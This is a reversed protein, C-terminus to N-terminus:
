VATKLTTVCKEEGVFPQWFRGYEKVANLWNSDLKRKRSTTRAVFVRGIVAKSKDTGWTRNVFCLLIAASSSANNAALKFHKAFRAFSSM